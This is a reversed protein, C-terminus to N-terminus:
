AAKEKFVEELYDCFLEIRKMGKFHDLYIMYGKIAPGDISPLVPVLTSTKLDPHEKPLSVIGINSEAANLLGVSTSISLYPERMDGKTNGLMLHWYESEGFVNPYTSSLLLRHSDLDEPKQPTGFEKLYQPSAYLKEHFTFLERQILGSENEIYPHILIDAERLKLDPTYDGSEVCLRIKPYQDLFGKLVRSLYSSVFGVTAAIRLYGEPDKRHENVEINKEEIKKYIEGVTEFWQKGEETLTLGRSERYFLRIGMSDELSMIQRSLAPQSLHMGVSADTFSRYQAVRYFTKLRDWDM